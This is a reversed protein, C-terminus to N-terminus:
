RTDQRSRQGVLHSIWSSSTAATETLSLQCCWEIDGPSATPTLALKCVDLARSHSSLSLVHHRGQFLLTHQLAFSLWTQHIVHSLRSLLQSYDLIVITCSLVCNFIAPNSLWQSNTILNQTERTHEQVCTMVHMAREGGRINTLRISITPLLIDTLKQYRTGFNLCAGFVCKKQRKTLSSTKLFYIKM